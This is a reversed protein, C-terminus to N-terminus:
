STERKALAIHPKESVVVGGPKEVTIAFAQPNQVKVKADIPIIVEGDTNIDFTGGDVPTKPNQNEAVIWLQYQEKGPDNKPLGSIRVYGKQMEDSWIIDGTPQVEKVTGAGLTAKALDRASAMLVQRMDGPTLKKEPSPSPTPPVNAEIRERRTYYINLALAVIALAAFAWGLWGFMSGRAEREPEVIERKQVHMGADALIRDRLSAPLQETRDLSGTAVSAAALEFSLSEDEVGGERQLESLEKQEEASLGYMAKKVLLDDILERLNENM